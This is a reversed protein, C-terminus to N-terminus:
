SATAETIQVPSGLIREVISVACSSDMEAQTGTKYM